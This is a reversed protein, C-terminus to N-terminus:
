CINYVYVYICIYIYIYIYMYMYVYVYICQRTPHTLGIYFRQRLVRYKTFSWVEGGKGGPMHHGREGEGGKGGRGGGGELSSQIEQRTLCHAALLVILPWPQPEM